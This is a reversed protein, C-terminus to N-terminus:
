SLVCPTSLYGIAKRLYAQMKSDGKWEAVKNDIVKRFDAVTYGESLRATILQRTENKTARYGRGTKENLYNVIEIIENNHKSNNNYIKDGCIKKGGEKDLNQPTNESLNKVGEFKKLPELNAKYRNNYGDQNELKILLGCEVLRKLSSDISPLSYQTWEQLYTRSGYFVSEGDESFGYIIAYIEKDLGKLNLEKIM